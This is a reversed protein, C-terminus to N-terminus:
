WDSKPKSHVQVVDVNYKSKWLDFKDAFAAHDSDRVGYYLTAPRPLTLAVGSEITSRIPAIGSGAALFILNTCRNPRLKKSASIVRLRRLQHSAIWRGHLAGCLRLGQRRSRVHRAGRRASGVHAM